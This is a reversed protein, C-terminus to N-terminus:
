KSCCEQKGFGVFYRSMVHAIFRSMSDELLSDSTCSKKLYHVRQKSKATTEFGLVVTNFFMRKICNQKLQQGALFEASQIPTLHM